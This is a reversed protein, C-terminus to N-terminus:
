LLLLLGSMIEKALSFCGLIGSLFYKDAVQIIKCAVQITCQKLQSLWPSLKYSLKLNSNKLDCVVFSVRGNGKAGAALQWTSENREEEM